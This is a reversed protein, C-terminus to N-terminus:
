LQIQNSYFESTDIISPSFYMKRLMMFGMFSIYVLYGFFVFWLFLSLSKKAKSKFSQLKYDEIM